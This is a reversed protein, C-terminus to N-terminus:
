MKKDNSFKMLMYVTIQNFGDGIEEVGLSGWRLVVKGM